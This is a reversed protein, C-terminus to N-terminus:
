RNLNLVIDGWRDITVNLKASAPARNILENVQHSTLTTFRSGSQVYVDRTFNDNLYEMIEGCTMTLESTKLNNLYIIVDEDSDVEVHLTDDQDGKKILSRVQADSLLLITTYNPLNVSFYVLRLEDENLYKNLEFKTVTSKM